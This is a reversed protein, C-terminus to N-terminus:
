KTKPPSCSQTYCICDPNHVIAQSEIWGFRLYSHHNWIFIYPREYNTTDVVYATSQGVYGCSSMFFALFWITILLVLGFWSRQEQCSDLFNNKDEVTQCEKWTKM